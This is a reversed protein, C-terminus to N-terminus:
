PADPMRPLALQVTGDSASTGHGLPQAPIACSAPPNTVQTCLTNDTEIEFIRLEGAGVSIGAADVLTGHMFATAPLSEAGLKYSTQTPDRPIAIETHTWDAAQVGDPVTFDLDYYAWVTDLIPDVYLTFAGSADTVATAPPIEALLGQGGTDLSWQFRLSPTATISINGVGKGDGDIVSGSLAVRGPLRIPSGDLALAKAYVGLESNAPPIVEISYNAAFAAGDLLQVNAMGDSGTQVDAQLVASGLGVMDQTFTGTVIVHAGSVATV